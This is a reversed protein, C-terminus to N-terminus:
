SLVRAEFDVIAHFGQPDAGDQIVMGGTWRIRASAPYDSVLPLTRGGLRALAAGIRSAHDEATEVAAEGELRDKAFGHLSFQYVAGDVCGAELPIASAAGLRIFPWTPVTRPAQPHISAAPVIATVGPEAKLWTMVARRLPLRSDRAM